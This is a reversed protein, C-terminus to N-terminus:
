QKSALRASLSTLAAEVAGIRASVAADASARALAEDKIRDAAGQISQALDTTSIAASLQDLVKSADVSVDIKAGPTETKDDPSGAVDGCTCGLGIGGLVYQGGDTLSMKVAFRASDVIQQSLFVQGGQVAFPTEPKEVQDAMIARVKGDVELTGNSHMKWGSVGPVYNHSQM